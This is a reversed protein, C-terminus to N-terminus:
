NGYALVGFDFPMPESGQAAEQAALRRYADMVKKYYSFKKLNRIKHSPGANWCVLWTKNGEHRCVHRLWSLYKASLEMQNAVNFTVGPFFQPRLQMLGVEGLKGVALRKFRSETYAIAILLNPEVGHRSGADIAAARIDGPVEIASSQVDHGQATTAKLTAIALLSIVAKM